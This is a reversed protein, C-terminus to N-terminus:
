EASVVEKIEVRSGFARATIKYGAGNKALIEIALGDCHGDPYFTVLKVCEEGQQPAERGSPDKFSLGQPLTFVRGFKDKTKEYTLKDASQQSATLQYRNATFSFTLRYNKRDIISREQAYNILKSISFAADKAALDSFTKRFLPVSLGILALIIVAVLTLEILTFAARRYTM